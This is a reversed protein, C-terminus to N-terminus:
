SIVLVTPMLFGRWLSCVQECCIQINGLIKFLGKIPFHATKNEREINQYKYSKAIGSRVTGHPHEHTVPTIM